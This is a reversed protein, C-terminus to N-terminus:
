RSRAGPDKDSQGQIGSARVRVGRAHGPCVALDTALVIQCEPIARDSEQQIRLAERTATLQDRYKKALTVAELVRADQAQKAALLYEAAKNCEEAIQNQTDLAARLTFAIQAASAAEAKFRAARQAHFGMGFLALALAAALLKTTMSFPTLM